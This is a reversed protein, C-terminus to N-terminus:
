RDRAGDDDDKNVNLALAGLFNVIKQTWAQVKGLRRHPRSNPKMGTIKSVGQLILAFGGIAALTYQLVLIVTDM